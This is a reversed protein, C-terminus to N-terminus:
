DQESLEATQSTYSNQRYSAYVYEMLAIDMAVEGQMLYDDRHAKLNNLITTAEDEQGNLLLAVTFKIRQKSSQTREFQHVYKSLRDTYLVKAEDNRGTVLCIFVKELSLETALLPMMRPEDLGENILRLADEWRHEAEMRGVVMLQWNAQIGDSWDVPEENFMEEPLENILAGEQIKANVELMQCILRKDRPSRNLYLMNYGDNSIGSMKMPIGSMLASYYGIIAVMVLFFIAWKPIDCCFLLALAVTSVIVNALVGGMNYWRMDIEDLPKRPPAMLCQGATGSVNFRRWVYKGDRRILAFNFIRFSVFRYGTLLGAALHGGEHVIIQLFFAVVAGLCAAIFIGIMELVDVKGLIEPIESVSRGGFFVLAGVGVTLGVTFCAVFFVIIILAKKMM